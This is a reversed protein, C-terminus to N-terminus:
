DDKRYVKVLESAMKGHQFCMYSTHALYHLFESYKVKFVAQEGCSVQKGGTRDERSQVQCTKM